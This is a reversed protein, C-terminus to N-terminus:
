GIKGFLDGYDEETIEQANLFRWSEPQDLAMLVWESITGEHLDNSVILRSDRTEWQYTILWYM